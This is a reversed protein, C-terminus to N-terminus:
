EIIDSRETDSWTLGAWGCLAEAVVGPKGLALRETPQLIWDLRPHRSNDTGHPNKWNWSESRM